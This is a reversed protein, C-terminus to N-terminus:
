LLVKRIRFNETNTCKIDIIINQKNNKRVYIQICTHTHM